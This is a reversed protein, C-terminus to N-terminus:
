RITSLPRPCYLFASSFTDTTEAASPPRHRRHQQQHRLQHTTSVTLARVLSLARERSRLAACARAAPARAKGPSPSASLGGRAEEGGAVLPRARAGQREATERRSAREERHKGERDEKEWGGGSAPSSAKLRVRTGHRVRM